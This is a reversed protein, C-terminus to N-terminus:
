INVYFHTEELGKRLWESMLTDRLGTRGFKSLGQAGTFHHLWYTNDFIVQHQKDALGQQGCSTLIYKHSVLNFGTADSVYIFIVSFNGNKNVFHPWKGKRKYFQAYNDNGWIKVFFM